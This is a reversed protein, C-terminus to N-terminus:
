KQTLALIIEDVVKDDLKNESSAALKRLLFVAIDTIIKEFLKQSIAKALVAFAAKQAGALIGAIM